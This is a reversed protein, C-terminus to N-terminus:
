HDRQNHIQLVVPFVNAARTMTRARDGNPRRRIADRLRVAAVATNDTSGTQKDLSVPGLSDM